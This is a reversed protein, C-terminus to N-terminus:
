RQITERVLNAPELLRFVPYAQPGGGWQVTLYRDFFNWVLLGDDSEPELLVAALGGLAQATSVYITGAPFEREVRSYSGKVSTTYHGQNLRTAGTVETTTFLEVALRAPEVLREVTLGHDLLKKVVAEDHIPILYGRPFPVTRKATYKAFYPVDTYTKKRDTVRFRPRAGGEQTIEMEYGLITLREDIPERDTEVIFVDNESPASGKAVARRDAERVLAVVEDRNAHLHDLFALFLNYCGRVRTEFDVYPYQENLVALRNRVGVYNSLYRIQAELPVWGKEPERVDMFDGHPLTLTGYREKMQKTIAPLLRDSMYRLIASDGNPNLGWTWTVPEEHYSGNHTHSDLFFVPDWRQLVNRVLGQVEPSEMKAGDRNLDLNQGNHRVGVGQEPGRQNRRNETSIKENGDANFIPAILIVLKDLYEPTRGQLIDRALMLAAEKGEVEGAHINAQFYVVARSDFRLDAPSAPVPKGIVILPVDRGEPSTCLTEVRVMPSLRQLERIFGMVDAYRSTAKFGSTEAVTLPGPQQAASWAPGCLIMVMTLASIVMTAPKPRM